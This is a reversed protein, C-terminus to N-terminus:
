AAPRRGASGSEGTRVPTIKVLVGFAPHDFYHLEGSRTQRETVLRYSPPLAVERLEAGPTDAAAASPAAGDQYALDLSVHLFRSLYVRVTGRPNTVGLLTLDFPKAQDEPLGPQVWGAHVLTRYAALNSLRRYENNLQLQEPALLRFSLPDEAPVPAEPSTQEVPPPPSPEVYLPLELLADNATGRLPVLEQDFREERTDFDRYAFVIIEVQYQPVPPTPAAAPQALAPLACATVILAAALSVFHSKM